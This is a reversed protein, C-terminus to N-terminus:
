SCYYCITLAFKWIRVVTGRYVFSAMPKLDNTHQLHDSDSPQCIFKDKQSPGMNISTCRDEMTCWNRCHSYMRVGVPLSINKLVYGILVYGDIPELFKLRRCGDTYWFVELLYASRRAYIPPFFHQCSIFLVSYFQIFNLIIARNRPNQTPNQTRDAWFSLDDAKPWAETLMFANEGILKWSSPM